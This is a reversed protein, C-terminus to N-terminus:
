FGGNAKQVLIHTIIIRSLFSVEFIDEDVFAQLCVLPKWFVNSRITELESWAILRNTDDMAQLSEVLLTELDYCHKALRNESQLYQETMDKTEDADNKWGKGNEDGLRPINSAWFREFAKLRNPWIMNRVNDPSFFYFEAVAQVIAVVTYVHGSEM